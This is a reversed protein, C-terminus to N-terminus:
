SVISEGKREIYHECISKAESICEEYGYYGWCSDVFEEHECGKDCVEVKYVEYGYVEGTLYQDYTKVEGELCKTVRDIIDQTIRKVNYEKRVKEKTVYIFGVCGSDWRCSFGTTNMTIGSHDYLYLPLSVCIDKGKLLEQGEEHSYNHKDGLNYRRHFCIMTGLNDWSRPSDTNDDQYIKLRYNGINEEHTTERNM